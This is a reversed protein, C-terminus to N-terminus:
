MMRIWNYVYMKTGLWPSSYVNEHDWSNDLILMMMRKVKKGKPINVLGNDFAKIPM